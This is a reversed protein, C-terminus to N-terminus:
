SNHGCPGGVAHPDTGPLSSAKGFWVMWVFTAKTGHGCIGCVAHPDTAPLSIDSWVLGGLCFSSRYRHAPGLVVAHPDTGPVPSTQGFWVVLVCPAEIGTLLAWSWQMLIQGLYHPHRVLGFWGSVLIKDNGPM